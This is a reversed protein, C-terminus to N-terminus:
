VRKKHQLQTLLDLSAMFAKHNHATLIAKFKTKKDPHARQAASIIEAPDAWCTIDMGEKQLKAAASMGTSLGMYVALQVAKKITDSVILHQRECLTIADPLARQNIERIAQFVEDGTMKKPEIM